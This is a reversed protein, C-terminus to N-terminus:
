DVIRGGGSERPKAALHQRHFFSTRSGLFTQSPSSDDAVRSPRQELQSATGVAVLTQCGM